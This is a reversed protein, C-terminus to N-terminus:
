TKKRVYLARVTGTIGLALVILVAGTPSEPTDTPSGPTDAPLHTPIVLTKKTTVPPVTTIEPPSITTQVSTIAPAQQTLRVNDIYGRAYVNM